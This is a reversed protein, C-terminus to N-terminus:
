RLTPHHGTLSLQSVKGRSATADRTGNCDGDSGFQLTADEWLSFAVRENDFACRNAPDAGQFKAKGEGLYTGAYLPQYPLQASFPCRQALLSAPREQSSM